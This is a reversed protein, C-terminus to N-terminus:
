RTYGEKKGEIISRGAIYSYAVAPAFHLHVNQCITGSFVDRTTCRARGINNTHCFKLLSKLKNPSSAFRNSWKVELANYPKQDASLFVLDVEGDNWRAYHLNNSGETHFCQSFYATEVLDGIHESDPGVAEFLATRISPNCLYVKFYNARKFKKSNVDVRNIRKILFAAELYDIYRKITNKAVGSSQSLNELTVENATNFALTTFLYNLEQVDQIGYLSPLDRLLVKDVIDNKIYQAPDNRLTESLAIEPYGGFNVYNIFEENIESFDKSQYTCNESSENWTFFRDKGILDLYEYFTLPPLLFDSFRGAGSETSKLKLAAAASGSAVFQIDPREDM